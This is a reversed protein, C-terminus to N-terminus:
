GVVFHGTNTPEVIHLQHHHHHHLPRPPVLVSPQLHQLSGAVHSSHLVEPRNEEKLGIESFSRNQTISSSINCLAPMIDRIAPSAPASGFREMNQSAERVQIMLTRTGKRFCDRRCNTQDYISVPTGQM